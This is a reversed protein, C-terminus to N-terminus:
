GGKRGTEASNAKHKHITDGTQDLAILRRTAKQKCQNLFILMGKGQVQCM